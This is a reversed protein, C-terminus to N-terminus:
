AFQVLSSDIAPLVLRMCQLNSVQSLRHYIAIWPKYLTHICPYAICHLYFSLNPNILKSNFPKCIQTRSPNTLAQWAGCLVMFACLFQIDQISLVVPEKGTNSQLSKNEQLSM